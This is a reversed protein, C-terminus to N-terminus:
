AYVGIKGNNDKRILDRQYIPNNYIKIACNLLSKLNKKGDNNSDIDNGQDNGNNYHCDGGGDNSHDKGRLHRCYNDLFYRSCPRNNSYNNINVQFL